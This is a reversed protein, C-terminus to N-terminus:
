KQFVGSSDLLAVTHGVGPPYGESSLSQLHVEQLQVAQVVLPGGPMPVHQKGTQPM